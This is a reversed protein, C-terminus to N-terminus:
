VINLRSVLLLLNTLNSTRLAQSETLLTNFFSQDRATRRNNVYQLRFVLLYCVFEVANCIMAFLVIVKDVAARRAPRVHPLHMCYNYDWLEDPDLFLQSCKHVPVPM